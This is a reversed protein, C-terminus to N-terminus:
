CIDRVGIRATRHNWHVKLEATDSSGSSGGGCLRSRGCVLIRTHTPPLYITEEWLGTKPNVMKSIDATTAIRPM